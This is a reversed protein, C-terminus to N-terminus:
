RLTCWLLNSTYIPLHYHYHHSVNLISLQHQLYPFTLICIEFNMRKLTYWFWLPFFISEEITKPSHIKKVWWRIRVPQFSSRTRLFVFVNFLVFIPGMYILGVGPRRWFHRCNVAATITNWKLEGFFYWSVRVLHKSIIIGITIRIQSLLWVEM